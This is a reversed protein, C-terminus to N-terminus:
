NNKHNRILIILQATFQSFISWFILAISFFFYKDFTTYGKLSMYCFLLTLILFIIIGLLNYLVGRKFNEPKTFELKEAKKLALEQLNRHFNDLYKQHLEIEEPTLKAKNNKTATTTSHGKVFVILVLGFGFFFLSILPLIINWPDMAFVAEKPNLPNYRINVKTGIKKSIFTCFPSTLDYNENEVNYTVVISNCSLEYKYNTVTSSTLIYEDKYKINNNIVYISVNLIIFSICFCIIASILAGLKIILFNHKENEM